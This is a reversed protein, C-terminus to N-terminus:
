SIIIIITERRVTTALTTRSTRPWECDAWRCTRWSILMALKSHGEEPRVSWRSLIRYPPMREPGGVGGCWPSLWGALWELLLLRRRSFPRVVDKTLLLKTNRVSKQKIRVFLDRVISYYQQLYELAMEVGLETVWSGTWNRSRKWKTEM